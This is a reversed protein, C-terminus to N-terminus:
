AAAGHRLLSGPNAGTSNGDVFTVEGNVLIYRYGEARRVRRWEGAPMDHAIEQPLLKLGDYDYVVIDAAAGPRLVGRDTFGAAYAPLASLKWHAEELSMAGRDRVFNILYETPYVGATLFKTHAGGDSM